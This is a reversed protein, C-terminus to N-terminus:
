QANMRILNNWNSPLTHPSKEVDKGFVDPLAWLSRIFNLPSTLARLGVIQPVLDSPSDRYGDNYTYINAAKLIPETMFRTNAGAHFVIRNNRMDMESLGRAAQVFDEGGRSHAVWYVPKGSDQVAQMQERLALIPATDIGLKSVATGGLDPFFGDTPAYSLTFRDIPRYPINTGQEVNLKDNRTQAAADVHTLMLGSVYHEPNLMGNRTAMDTFWYRNGERTNAVTLAESGFKMVLYTNRLDDRVIVGYPDPNYESPDRVKDVVSTRIDPNSVKILDLYSQLEEKHAQTLGLDKDKQAEQERATSSAFTELLSFMARTAKACGASTSDGNCALKFELDRWKDLADLEDRKTCAVQDDDQCARAAKLRDANEQHSLYNNGVENLAAAAGPAGGLAAGAATSAAATIAMALPGTIGAQKLQGAVVPATLTGLAAGAAGPVGGTLGGILTHAALRL